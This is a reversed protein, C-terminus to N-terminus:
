GFVVLPTNAHHPHSTVFTDVGYVRRLTEVTLAKSPIDCAVIEGDCLLAIRDSFRAALNVDHLVVLVGLAHRGALERVSRLLTHQHLPDLSATPEDLLLYRPSPGLEFGCLVQLIARAYHVRQQEGGSLEPYRRQELHSIDAHEMAHATLRRVEPEALEPYPYAGMSVVEAVQLDFALDPKQPLVARERAKQMASMRALQDGNLTVSTASCRSRRQVDRPDAALREGALVSLFSSKGAGNAGLLSVVEGAGLALSVDRLIIARQQAMTLRQAALQGKLLPYAPTM